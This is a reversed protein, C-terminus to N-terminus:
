VFSLENAKQEAIWKNPAPKWRTWRGFHGCRPLAAVLLFV